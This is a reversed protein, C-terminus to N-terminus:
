GINATIIAQTTEFNYIGTHRGGMWWRCELDGLTVFPCRYYFVGIEVVIKSRIVDAIQRSKGCKRIKARNKPLIHERPARRLTRCIAAFRARVPLFVLIILTSKIQWPLPYFAHEQQSKNPLVRCFAAIPFFEVVTKSRGMLTVVIHQTLSLTAICSTAYDPIRHYIYMIRLLPM